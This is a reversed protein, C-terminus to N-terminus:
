LSISDENPDDNISDEQDNKWGLSIVAEDNASDEQDNKWGLSIVAEHKILIKAATNALETALREKGPNNMHLGHQTLLKRDPDIRMVTVHQYPKM